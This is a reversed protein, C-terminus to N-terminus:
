KLNFYKLIEESFKSSLISLNLDNEKKKIENYIYNIIFYLDKIELKEILEENFNNNNIKSWIIFLLNKSNEYNAIPFFLLKDNKSTIAYKWNNNKNKSLYETFFYKQKEFLIFLKAIYLIIMKGLNSNSKSFLYKHIENLNSNDDSNHIEHMVFHYLFCRCYAFLYIIGIYKLKGYDNNNIDDFAKQFYDFNLSILALKPSKRIFDKKKIEDFYSNIIMEFIYLLIERLIENNECEQNIVDLIKNDSNNKIKGFENKFLNKKYTDNDRLEIMKPKMLKLITNSLFIYNFFLSSHKILNPVSFVIKIHM